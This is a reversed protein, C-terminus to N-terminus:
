SWLFRYRRSEKSKTFQNDNYDVLRESVTDYVKLNYLQKWKMWVRISDISHKKDSLISCNHLKKLFM